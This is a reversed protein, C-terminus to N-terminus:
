SSFSSSASENSHYTDTPSNYDEIIIHNNKQSVDKIYKVISSSFQHKARRVIADYKFYKYYVCLACLLTGHLLIFITLLIVNIDKKAALNENVVRIMEDMYKICQVDESTEQPTTTIITNATLANYCERIISSSVYALEMDIYLHTKEFRCFNGDSRELINTDVM